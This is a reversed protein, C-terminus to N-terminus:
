VPRVNSLTIVGAGDDGGNEAQVGVVWWGDMSGDGVSQVQSQLKYKKVNSTKLNKTQGAVGPNSIPNAVAQKPPQYSGASGVSSSYGAVDEEDDRAQFGLMKVTGRNFRGLLFFISGIFRIANWFTVVMALYALFCTPQFLWGMLWMYGVNSIVWWGLLRSRSAKFSAKTAAERKAADVREQEEKEKRKQIDELTEAGLEDDNGMGGDGHSSGKDAGKTGWSLDHVNCWSFVGFIFVYTPLLYFYKFTNFVLFHFEGHLVGILYLLGICGIFFGIGVVATITCSAASAGAIGPLLPSAHLRLPDSGIGGSASFPYQYCINGDSFTRLDTPNSQSIKNVGTESNFQGFAAPPGIQPYSDFAKNFAEMSCTMVTYGFIRGIKNSGQGEASGVNIVLQYLMLANLGMVSWIICGFYHMSFLYFRDINHKPKHGLGMIFQAFVMVAMSGIMIQGVPHVGMTLKVVQMIGMFFNGPMFWALVTCFINYMFQWIFVFKACAGHGSETLIRAFNYLAYVSAFFSGNAWRRRQKMLSVLTDPVDTYAIADKCYHLTWADNRKAVLEFCLIRDEALYMNKEFVSMNPGEPSLPKFYVELAGKGYEDNKIAEYRYASFAGPLVSIFGCISELAKDMINSIKYEFIQTATVLSKQDCCGKGGGCWMEPGFPNEVAIEGCVGATYPNEDMSRILRYIASKAAKTGVDILVCYKPNLQAAFAYFFWLQSHQKGGNNEKLSFVIQLPDRNGGQTQNELQATFEFVHNMPQKPLGQENLTMSNEDYMGRKNMWEKTGKNMKTRGDSVIITSAQQWIARKGQNISEMFELNDCVAQLTDNMEHAEENYMTINILFKIRRNMVCARLKYGDSIFKSPDGPLVPLYRMHTFEEGHTQPPQSGGWSPRVDTLFGEKFSDDAELIAGLSVGETQTKTHTELQEGRTRLDNAKKTVMAKTGPESTAEALAEAM